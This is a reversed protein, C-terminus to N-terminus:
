FKVTKKRRSDWGRGAVLVPVEATIFSIRRVSFGLGPLLYLTGPHALLTRPTECPQTSAGAWIAGLWSTNNTATHDCLMHAVTKHRATRYFIRSAPRFPRRSIQTSSAIHHTCCRCKMGFRAYSGRELKEEAECAPPIRLCDERIRKDSVAAAESRPCQLASM